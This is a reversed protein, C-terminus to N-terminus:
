NNQVKKLVHKYYLMNECIELLFIMSKLLM